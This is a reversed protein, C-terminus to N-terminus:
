ARRRALWRRVRLWLYGVGGVLLVVVVIATWPILLQDPGTAPRISLANPFASIMQIRWGYHRVVMWRPDDEASRADDAVAALNASNFKFYPPWGWGTDENRYVRPDGDPSVAKIFRVDTVRVQGEPGSGETRRQVETGLIRVVDRGPLSWHLFGAVALVVLTILTWKATRM